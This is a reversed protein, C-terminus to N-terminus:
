VNPTVVADCTPVQRPSGLCRLQNMCGAVGGVALKRRPGVGNGKGTSVLSLEFLEAVTEVFPADLEGADVLRVRGVVPLEHSQPEERRVLGGEPPEERVQRQDFLRVPHPTRQVATALRVSFPELGKRGVM